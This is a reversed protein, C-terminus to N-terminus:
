PFWWVWQCYLMKIKLCVVTYIYFAKNVQCETKLYSDFKFYIMLMWFHRLIGCSKLPIHKTLSFVNQINLLCLFWMVCTLSKNLVPDVLSRAGDLACIIQLHLSSWTQTKLENAGPLNPIFKLSTIKLSIKTISPQFQGWMFPANGWQHYTLMPEPLPKTGDPLLGNGSGINVWILTVM